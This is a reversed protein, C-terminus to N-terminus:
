CHNKQPASTLALLEIVDFGRINEQRRTNKNGKKNKHIKTNKKQCRSYVIHVIM